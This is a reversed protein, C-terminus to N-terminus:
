LQSDKFVDQRLKLVCLFGLSLSLTILVGVNYILLTQSFTVQGSNYLQWSTIGPLSYVGKEGLSM